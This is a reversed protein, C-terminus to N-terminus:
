RVAMCCSTQIKANNGCSHVAKDTKAKGVGVSVIKTECSPCLPTPVDKMAGARMGKLTTDTVKTYGDTCRTCSMEARSSAVPQASAPASPGAFMLKSAGKGEASSLSPVALSLAGLAICGLLIFHRPTNILKM